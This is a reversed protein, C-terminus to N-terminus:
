VSIAQEINDYVEYMDYLDLAKLIKEVMRSIRIIKLSGNIEDLKNKLAIIVRMGTSSFYSVDSFDLIINKYGEAVLKKFEGELKEAGIIDARGSLIFVSYKDIHEIRYKFM